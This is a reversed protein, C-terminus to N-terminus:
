ENGGTTDPAPVAGRRIFEKIKALRVPGIGPVALLTEDTAARVDAFTTIGIGVLAGVTERNLGPIDFLELGIIGADPLDTPPPPLPREMVPGYPNCRCFAKERDGRTVWLVPAACKPCVNMDNM